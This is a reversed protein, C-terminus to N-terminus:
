STPAFLLLIPIPEDTQSDEVAAVPSTEQTVTPTITRTDTQM